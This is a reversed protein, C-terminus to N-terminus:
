LRERTAIPQSSVAACGKARSGAVVTFAAPFPIPRAPLRPPSAQDKERQAADRRRAQIEQLKDLTALFRRQLGAEYRSLMDGHGFILFAEITQGLGPQQGQEETQAGHRRKGRGVFGPLDCYPISPDNTCSGLWALLAAEIRPIRRLRWAAWAAQKVLEAEIAGVPALETFLRARFRRFAEPAEGPLLGALATLGHTLANQSSRAKGAASRPGTSAQANRRNAELQKDTAL